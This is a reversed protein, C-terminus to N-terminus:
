QVAAGPISSATIERRHAAAARRRDGIIRRRWCFALRAGKGAEVGAATSRSTRRLVRSIQQQDAGLGDARALVIEARWV